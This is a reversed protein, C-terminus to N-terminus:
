RSFAAAALVRVGPALVGLLAQGGVVLQGGVGVAVLAVDVTEAFQMETEGVEGVLGWSLGPDQSIL